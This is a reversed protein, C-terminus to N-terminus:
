AAYEQVAEYLALISETPTNAQINHCPAVIYGRGGRFLEINECVQRRVAAPGEFPLTKQNDVGGHFVV